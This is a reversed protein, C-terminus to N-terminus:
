VAVLLVVSILVVTEVDGVSAVPDKFTYMATAQAQPIARTM